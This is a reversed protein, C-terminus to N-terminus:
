PSRAAHQSGAAGAPGTRRRQQLACALLRCLRAAGTIQAAAVRALSPLQDRAGCRAAGDKYAARRGSTTWGDMTEVSVVWAVGRVM